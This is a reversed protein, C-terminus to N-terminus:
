ARATPSPRQRTAIRRRVGSPSRRSAREKWAFAGLSLPQVLHERLDGVSRVGLGRYELRRKAAPSRAQKCGRATIRLSDVQWAAGAVLGAEAPNSGLSVDPVQLGISKCTGSGPGLAGPRRELEVSSASICGSRPSDRPRTPPFSRGTPTPWRRQPGPPVSRPEPEDALYVARRLQLQAVVCGSEWRRQLRWQWGGELGSGRERGCRRVGREDRESPKGCTITM